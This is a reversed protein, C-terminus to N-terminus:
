AISNINARTLTSKSDTKQQEKFSVSKFSKKAVGAAMMAGKGRTVTLEFDKDTMETIQQRQRISNANQEISSTSSGAEMIRDNLSSTVDEEEGGSSSSNPILKPFKFTESPQRDFPNQYDKFIGGEEGTNNSSPYNDLFMRLYM